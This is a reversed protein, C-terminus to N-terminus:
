SADFHKPLPAHLTNPLISPHPPPYSKTQVEYCLSLSLSIDASGQLIERVLAGVSSEKAVSSMKNWFRYQGDNEPSM